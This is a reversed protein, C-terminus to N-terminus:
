FAEQLANAACNHCCAVNKESRQRWKTQRCQNVCKKFTVRHFRLDLSFDVTAWLPCAM